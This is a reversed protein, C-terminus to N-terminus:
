CRKYCWYRDQHDPNSPGTDGGFAWMQRFHDLSQWHHVSIKLTEVMSLSLSTVLYPFWHFVVWVVLHNYRTGGRCTSQYVLVRNALCAKYRRVCHLQFFPRPLLSWFFYIGKINDKGENTRSVFFKMEKNFNRQFLRSLYRNMPNNDYNSKNDFLHCKFRYWKPLLLGVRFLFFLRFFLPLPVVEVGAFSKRLATLLSSIVVFVIWVSSSGAATELLTTLVIEKWLSFQTGLHDEHALQLQSFMELIWKWLSCNLTDRRKRVPFM